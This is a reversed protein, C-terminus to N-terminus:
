SSHKMRRTRALSETRRVASSMFTLWHHNMLISRPRSSAERRTEKQLRLREAYNTKIRNSRWSPSTEPYDELRYVRGPTTTRAVYFSSEGEEGKERLKGGANVEVGRSTWHRLLCLLLLPLAAVLDRDDGLLDDGHRERLERLEGGRDSRQVRIRRLKQELLEAILEHFLHQQRRSIM